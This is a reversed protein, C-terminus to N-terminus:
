HIELVWRLAKIKNVTKSVMIPLSHIVEGEEIMTTMLQKETELKKELRELEKKIDLESKM